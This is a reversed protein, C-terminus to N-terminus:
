SVISPMLVSSFANIFFVPRFSGQGQPDPFFNLFHQSLLIIPPLNIAVLTSGPADSCILFATLIVENKWDLSASVGFFGIGGSGEKSIANNDSLESFDSSIEGSFSLIQYLILSQQRLEIPLAGSKYDSPQPNLEKRWCVWKRPTDCLPLQLPSYIGRSRDENTRTWDGGIEYLFRGEFYEVLFSRSTGRNPCFHSLSEVGIEINKRRRFEECSRKLSLFRMIKEKLTGNKDRQIITYAM